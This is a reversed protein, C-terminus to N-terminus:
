EFVGHFNRSLVEPLDRGSKGMLMQLEDDITTFNPARYELYWCRLLPFWLDVACKIYYSIKLFYFVNRRTTVEHLLQFLLTTASDFRYKTKKRADIILSGNM